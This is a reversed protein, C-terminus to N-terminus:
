ASEPRVGASTRPKMAARRASPIPPRESIRESAPTRENARKRSFFWLPFIPASAAMREGFIALVKGFGSAIADAFSM